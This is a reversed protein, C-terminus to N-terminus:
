SNRACVATSGQLLVVPRSVATQPLALPNESEVVSCARFLALLLLPIFRTTESVATQTVEVAARVAGAKAPQDTVM